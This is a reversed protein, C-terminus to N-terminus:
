AVEPALLDDSFGPDALGALGGKFARLSPRRGGDGYLVSAWRTSAELGSSSSSIVSERPVVARPSYNRGISM